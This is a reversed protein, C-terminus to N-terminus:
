LYRYGRQEERRFWGLDNMDKETLHELELHNPVAVAKVHEFGDADLLNRLMALCDTVDDLAVVSGFRLFLVDNKAFSRKELQLYRDALGDFLSVDM